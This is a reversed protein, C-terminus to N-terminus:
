KINNDENNLLPQSFTLMKIKKWVENKFFVHNGTGTGTVMINVTFNLNAAFNIVSLFLFLLKEM